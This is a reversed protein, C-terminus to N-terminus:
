GAGAQIVQLIVSGSGSAQTLQVARVPSILTAEASATAAIMGTISTWNATAPDFGAAFPDDKTYRATYAVTGTVLAQLTVQFPTKYIDLVCVSSSKAGGSADATTLNVPRM